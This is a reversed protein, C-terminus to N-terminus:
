GECFTAARDFKPTIALTGSRDIYGWKGGRKVAALGERFQTAFEFQPQIVVKGNTDYFGQSVFKGNKMATVTALGESFIGFTADTEVVFKGDHGILGKQGEKEALALGETFDAAKTFQPEIVVRGSHNIYGYVGDALFRALGDSFSAVSEFQPQIVIDGSQDIFGWRGDICVRALGEAFSAAQDFQPQIVVNGDKNMYGWKSGNEILFLGTKEEHSSECAVWAFAMTASTALSFFLRKM